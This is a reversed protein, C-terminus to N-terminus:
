INSKNEDESQQITTTKELPRWIAYLICTLAALMILGSMMTYQANEVRDVYYKQISKDFFDKVDGYYVLNSLKIDNYILMIEFPVTLIFLIFAMFLWGRKKFDKRTFIALLISSIASIGYAIDTYLSTISYVYANYMRVENTYEPKLVFDSGVVFLDYSITTRIVTGGFWVVFGIAFFTLLVKFCRSYQPM